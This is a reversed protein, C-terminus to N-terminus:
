VASVCQIAYFIRRESGVVFIQISLDISDGAFIYGLSDVKQRYLALTLM